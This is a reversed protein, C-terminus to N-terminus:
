VLHYAASQFRPSAPVEQFGIERLAKRFRHFGNRLALMEESGFYGFNYHFPKEIASVLMLLIPPCTESYRRTLEFDDAKQGLTFHILFDRRQQSDGYPGNLCVSSLDHELKAEM